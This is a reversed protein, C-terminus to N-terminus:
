CEKGVRREESRLVHRGNSPSVALDYVHRGVLEPSASLWTPADAAVLLALGLWLLATAAALRMGGASM